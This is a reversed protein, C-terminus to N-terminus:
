ELDLLATWVSLVGLDERTWIPRVHGDVASINNYDGFFTQGAPVFPTESVQRNTWTAGGDTSSAVVVHTSREAASGNHRRDYFVVHVDGRVPDVTMWTFFQDRGPGDNNVRQTPSWTDGGDDSHTLWVDNDGNRNDTWNVYIRGRHPGDSHDVCTVPMGNCRGIGPITQDWGGVVSAVARDKGWSRGGDSSRDFWIWDGLAWAVYVEGNTGVAPVAGEATNDGDLCDGAVDSVRVPTSWKNGAKSAHSCLILTSDGAERSNYRDFQTWCAHIRKNDASVVAWEKDQDKSGSLGMGGGKSWSRGGDTSRQCVIRDLLSESAWGAGEPDSLHLYYFDGRPSAVVCPDGFVGYRSTLVDKTWTKGGDQSTYVNDLISGAVMVDPDVPSIALSPECPQYGTGDYTDIQVNPVQAVVCVATVVCSGLALLWKRMTGDM